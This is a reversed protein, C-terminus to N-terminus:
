ISNTNQTDEKIKHRNLYIAGKEFPINTKGNSLNLFEKYVKSNKTNKFFKHIRTARKDSTHKRLIKEWGTAKRKIKRLM